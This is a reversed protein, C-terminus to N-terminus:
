RNLRVPLQIHMFCCKFSWCVAVPLLFRSQIIAENVVQLSEKRKDLKAGQNAITQITADMHLLLEALFIFMIVGHPFEHAVAGSCTFYKATGSLSEEATNVLLTM